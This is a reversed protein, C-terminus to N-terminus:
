SVRQFLQAPIVTTSVASQSRVLKTSGMIQQRRRGTINLTSCPENHCEASTGAGEAGGSSGGTNGTGNGGTSDGGGSGAAGGPQPGVAPPKVDQPPPPPQQPPPPPQQPLPPPQNPRPPAAVPRPPTQIQATPPPPPPIQPPDPQTIDGSPIAEILWALVTGPADYVSRHDGSRGAVVVGADTLHSLRSAGTGTSEQWPAPMNIMDLASPPERLDNASNVANQM